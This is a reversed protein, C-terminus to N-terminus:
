QRHKNDDTWDNTSKMRLTFLLYNAKSVYMHRVYIYIYIYMYTSAIKAIWTISIVFFPTLSRIINMNMYIYLYACILTVFYKRYIFRKYQKVNIYTCKNLYYLIYYTVFYIYQRTNTAVPDNMTTPLFFKYNVVYSYWDDTLWWNIGKFYYNMECIYRIRSMICIALSM